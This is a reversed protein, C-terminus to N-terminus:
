TTVKTVAARRLLGNSTLYQYPCSISRQRCISLAAKFSSLFGSSSRSSTSRSSSSSAAHKSAGGGGGSLMLTLKLKDPLFLLMNQTQPRVQQAYRYPYERPMKQNNMNAMSISSSRADNGVCNDNSRPSEIHGWCNIKRTRLTSLSGRDNSNRM